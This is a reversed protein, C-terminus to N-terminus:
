TYKQFTTHNFFYHQLHKIKPGSYRIVAYAIPSKRRWLVLFLLVFVLFNFLTYKAVSKLLWSWQSYCFRQHYMFFTDKKKLSDIEQCLAIIESRLSEIVEMKKGSSSNRGKKKNTYYFSPSTATDQSSHNETSYLHTFHPLNDQKIYTAELPHIEPTISSSYYSQQESLIQDQEIHGLYYEEKEQDNTDWQILDADNSHISIYHEETNDTEQLYDLSDRLSETLESHPFQVIFQELLDILADIYMIQADIPSVGRLKDWAKWKVYQVVNKLSPRFLMCDGVLAQKYLGYFKLKNTVSPQFAGGSETPLSRVVALARCFRIQTVYLSASTLIM